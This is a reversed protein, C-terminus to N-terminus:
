LNNFVNQLQKAWDPADPDLSQTDVNEYIESVLKGSKVDYLRYDGGPGHTPGFLIAVQKGSERFMWTYVAQGQEFTHLVHKHRFIVIRIPISYSTCCNEVDIAWGITQRDRAMEVQTFGLANFDNKDAKWRPLTRVIETGDSYIIHLPGTEHKSGVTPEAIFFKTIQVAAGKIQPGISLSQGFATACLLSLLLSVCRLTPNKVPQNGINLSDTSSLDLLSRYLRM